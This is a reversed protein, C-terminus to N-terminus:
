KEKDLKSKAWAAGYDVGKKAVYTAAKKTAKKQLLGWIFGGAVMLIPLAVAGIAPGFSIPQSITTCRPCSVPNNEQLLIPFGCDTCNGYIVSM